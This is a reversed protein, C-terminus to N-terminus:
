LILRANRRQRGKGYTMRLSTNFMKIKAFETLWGTPSTTCGNCHGARAVSSLWNYEPCAFLLADAARIQQRLTEVSPPFGQARV